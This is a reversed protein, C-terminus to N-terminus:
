KWDFGSSEFNALSNHSRIRWSHPDDRGEERMWWVGGGWSRIWARRVGLGFGVLV